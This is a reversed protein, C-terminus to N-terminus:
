QLSLLRRGKSVHIASILELESLLDLDAASLSATFVTRGIASLGHIGFRGLVESDERTPVRSTHVVIDYKTSPGVPSRALAMALGPDFKKADM